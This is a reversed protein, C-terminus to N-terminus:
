NVTLQIPYVLIASDDIVIDVGTNRLSNRFMANIIDEVNQINDLSDIDTNQIIEDIEIETIEKLSLLILIYETGPTYKFEYAVPWNYSEQLPYIYSVEKEM